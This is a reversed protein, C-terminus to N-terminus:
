LIRQTRPGAVALLFFRFNYFSGLQGAHMIYLRRVLGARDHSAAILACCALEHRDGHALRIAVCPHYQSGRAAERMASSGIPHALTLADATVSMCADFVHKDLVENIARCSQSAPALSGGAVHVAIFIQELVACPLDLLQTNNRSM